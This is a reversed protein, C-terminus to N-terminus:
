HRQPRSPIGVCTTTGDTERAATSCPKASVIRTTIGDPATQSLGTLSFAQDPAIHVAPRNPTNTDNSDVIAGPSAGGPNASPTNEVGTYGGLVGGVTSENTGITGVGITPTSTNGETMASPAGGGVAGAPAGGGVPGAPAGGGVAVGGASAATGVGGRGGGAGAGGAGAAGGFGAGGGGRAFAATTSLSVCLIVCLISLKKM